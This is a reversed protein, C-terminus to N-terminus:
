SKGAPATKTKEDTKAKEKAKGETKPEQTKSEAPKEATERTTKPKYDHNRKRIVSAEVIRDLRAGQQRTDRRQLKGLVDFGTVVRGFVTHGRDPKNDDTFKADLARVRDNAGLCILFKSGGTDRVNNDLDMSLSGRFHRRAISKGDKMEYCECPITYGPGGTGDDTAAGGHVAFQPVVRHFAVGKYYGKEVLSIFNAVTNPAENEFLEVVIDGQSTKLLVRPLAKAPDAAAKEEAARLASEAAWYEKEKALSERLTKLGAVKDSGPSKAAEALHKEALDFNPSLLQMAAAAAATYAGAREEDTLGGSDIVAQRLRFAQEYDDHFQEATYSLVILFEKLEADKPNAKFAAEAAAGVQPLMDRAQQSKENFKARLDDREKEKALRYEVQLDRIEKVLATWQAHLKAFDGAAPAAKTKEQSWAVCVGIGLLVSGFLAAVCLKGRM